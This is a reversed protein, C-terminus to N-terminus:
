LVNRRRRPDAHREEGLHVARSMGVVEDALRDLESSLFAIGGSADDNLRDSQEMAAKAMHTFTLERTHAKAAGFSADCAPITALLCGSRVADELARLMAEMQKIFTELGPLIDRGNM